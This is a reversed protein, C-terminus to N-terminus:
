KFYWLNHYHFIGSGRKCINNNYKFFSKKQLIWQEHKENLLVSPELKLLSARRALFFVVFEDSLWSGLLSTLPYWKWNGSIRIISYVIRIVTCIPSKKMSTLIGRKKSMVCNYKPDIVVRRCVKSLIHCNLFCVDPWFPFQYFVVCHRAIYSIILV